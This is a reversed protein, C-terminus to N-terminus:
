RGVLALVVALLVSIQIGVLWVFHRSIKQDLSDFGETMRQELTEFRRDFAAFRRDVTEFRRDIAAFRQDVADFRGYIASFHAEFGEVRGELKAVREELAPGPM